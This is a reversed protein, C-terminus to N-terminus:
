VFNPMWKVVNEFYMIEKTLREVFSEDLINEHDCDIRVVKDFSLKPMEAMLLEQKEHIYQLQIAQEM